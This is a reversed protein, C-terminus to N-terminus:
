SAIPPSPFARNPRTGPFTSRTPILQYAMLGQALSDQCATFWDLPTLAFAMRFTSPSPLDTSDFGLRRCYDQGRLPSRLEGVLRAWDWSQYHALFMGLGLSLPDFPPPGYQSRFREAFYPRWPSFDFLRLMLDFEDLDLVSVDNGELWQYHSRCLRGTWPSPEGPTPLKLPLLPRIAEWRFLEVFNPLQLRREAALLARGASLGARTQRQLQEFPSNPVHIATTVPQAPVWRTNM